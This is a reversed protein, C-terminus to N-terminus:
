EVLLASMCKLGPQLAGHFLRCCQPMRVGGEGGLLSGTTMGSAIGYRSSGSAQSSICRAPRSRRCKIAISVPRGQMHPALRCERPVRPWDCHCCLRDVIRRFNTRRSRQLRGFRDPQGPNNPSKRGKQFWSRTLDDLRSHMRQDGIGPRSKRTGERRGPLARIIGYRLARWSCRGDKDRVRCLLSTPM